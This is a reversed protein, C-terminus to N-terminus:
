QIAAQRADGALFPVALAAEADAWAGPRSSDCNRAFSDLQTQLDALAQTVEDALSSLEQRRPEPRQRERSATDSEILRALQRVKPGLGRVRQPPDTHSTPALAGLWRAYAPLRAFGLDRAAYARRVLDGGKEAREYVATARAFYTGARKHEE